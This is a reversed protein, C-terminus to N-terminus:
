RAARRPRSVMARPTKEWEFGPEPDMRLSTRLGTWRSPRPMYGHRGFSTSSTKQRDLPGPPWCTLLTEV